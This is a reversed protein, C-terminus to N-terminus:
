PVSRQMQASQCALCLGHGMRTCGNDISATETEPCYTRCRSVAVPTIGGRPFHKFHFLFLIHLGSVATPSWLTCLHLKTARGKLGARRHRMSALPVTINSSASFYSIVCPYAEVLYYLFALLYPKHPTKGISAHPWCCALLGKNTVTYCLQPMALTSAPTCCHTCGVCM